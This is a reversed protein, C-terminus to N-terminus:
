AQVLDLGGDQPDLQRAEILPVGAPRRDRGRIQVAESLRRQDQRLSRRVAVVDPVDERDSGAVPFPQASGQGSGADLREDM